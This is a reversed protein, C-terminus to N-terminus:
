PVERLKSRLVVSQPEGRNKKFTVDAELYHTRRDRPTHEAVYDLAHQLFYLSAAIGARAHQLEFPRGVRARVLEGWRYGEFGESVDTKQGARDVAWIRAQWLTSESFPQYGFRKLPDYYAHLVAYLQAALVSAFFARAWLRRSAPGASIM